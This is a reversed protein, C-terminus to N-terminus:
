HDTGPDVDVRVCHYDKATFAARLREFHDEDRFVGVVAGGSGSFKAPADHARAIHVMEINQAGIVKEGFIQWRLNFNRDMLKCFQDVDGNRLADRGQTAFSAFSHMAAVVEADGRHWRARVDSHAKGSDEPTALYALFLGPLLAPDLPVYEGYGRSNLLGKDFDMYVLGGFTQAVRDQLGARIDLEEEEVSLIVGPQIPRPLQEDTIGYIERLGKFVATIIASSGALGVQRPINTDYSLTFGRKPLRIDHDLCYETFKKCAAYLVRFGGYYGDRCAVTHLEEISGFRSPDHDPHPLLVVEDSEEFTASASFNGITCAITRGFYGDSPNGLLGIRAFARTEITM